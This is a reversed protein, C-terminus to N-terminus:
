TIYGYIYIYIIVYFISVSVLRGKRLIMSCVPVKKKYNYFKDWNEENKEMGKRRNGFSVSKKKDINNSKEVMNIQINIEEGFTAEISAVIRSM